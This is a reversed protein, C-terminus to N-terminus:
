IRQELKLSYKDDMAIKRCHLFGEEGELGTVIM